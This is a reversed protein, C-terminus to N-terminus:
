DDEDEDMPNGDADFGPPTVPKNRGVHPDSEKPSAKWRQPLDTPAWLLPLWPKHGWETPELGRLARAENITLIGLELEQKEQERADRNSPKVPDDSALFLRRTPDFRPVLQENLKEDRRRLRPTIALLMHQREAAELNALNTESVLYSLPVHFANCIDTKTAKADALAALDGMSHQLVDVQLNTDAVLLKGAGGRRFKANWQAEIRDRDEESIVEAPSVIVSPIGTNDYVASRMANYDGASRVQEWCARLPSLGSTYPDRPDPYRFHIVEEPRFRAETSGSRYSFYSVVDPSNQDRKPAVNQSPLPWIEVPVGLPGDVLLWYAAGNTEQYLTTLEWLDFANHQPNVQALLDLLPHALVEEVKVAKTLGLRDKLAKANLVPRTLCKPEPDTRGTTVYLRPPFTACVAANVSACTWATGRLENALDQPSPQRQRRFNDVTTPGQWQPGRLAPPAAKATLWRFFRNLYTDM